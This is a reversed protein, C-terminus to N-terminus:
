LTTAPMTGLGQKGGTQDTGGMPMAAWALETVDFAWSGYAAIRAPAVLHWALGDASVEPKLVLMFHATLIVMLFCWWVREGTTEAKPLAPVKLRRAAAIVLPTATLAWWLWPRNIPFHVLVGFLVIWGAVGLATALLAEEIMPFLVRGLAWCAAVTWLVSAVAAPGVAAVGYIAWAAIFSLAVQRVKVATIAGTVAAGAAAFLGLRAWGDPTWHGDPRLGYHHLGALVLAFFIWGAAIM